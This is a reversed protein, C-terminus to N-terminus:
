HGQKVQGWEMRVLGAISHVISQFAEADGRFIRGFVTKHRDSKELCFCLLLVLLDRAHLGM